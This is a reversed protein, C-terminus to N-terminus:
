GWGNNIFHIVVGVFYMLLLSVDLAMFVLFLWLLVLNYNCWRQWIHLIRFIQAFYVIQCQICKFGGHLILHCVLCVVFCDHLVLMKKCSLCHEVKGISDVAEVGNECCACATAFHVANYVPVAIGLLLAHVHHPFYDFLVFHFLYDLYKAPPFEIGLDVDDDCFGHPVAKVEVAQEVTEDLGSIEIESRSTEEEGGREGELACEDVILVEDVVLDVVPFVDISHWHEGHFLPDGM